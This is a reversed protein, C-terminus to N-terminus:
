IYRICEFVCIYVLMCMCDCVCVCVCVFVILSICVCVCVFMYGVIVLLFSNRSDKRLAVTRPSKNNWRLFMTWVIKFYKTELSFAWYRLTGIM